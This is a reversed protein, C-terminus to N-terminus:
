PEGPRKQGAVTAQGSSRFATTGGTGGITPIVVTGAARFTPTGAPGQIGPPPTSTFPTAQFPPPAFGSTGSSFGPSSASRRESERRFTDRRDTDRRDINGRYMDRGRERERIRDLYFGSNSLGSYNDYYGPYGGYGYQNGSYYPQNAGYPYSGYNSRYDTSDPPPYEYEYQQFDERALPAAPPASVNRRAVEVDMDVIRDVNGGPYQLDFTRDVGTSTVVRVVHRGAPVQTLRLPITGVDHGDYFIHGGMSGVVTMTSAQAAAASLLLACVTLRLMTTLRHM